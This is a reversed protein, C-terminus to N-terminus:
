PTAQNSGRPALHRAVVVTFWNYHSTSCNSLVCLRIDEYYQGEIRSVSLMRIEARVKLLTIAVKFETASPSSEKSIYLQTSEYVTASSESFIATGEKLWLCYTVGERCSATV